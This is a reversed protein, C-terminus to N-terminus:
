HKGFPSAHGGPKAGGPKAGGSGSPAATAPASVSVPAAENKQNTQYKQYMVYGAGGILAMLILVFIPGFPSPRTSSNNYKERKGSRGSGSRSASPSVYTPQEVGPGPKFAPLPNGALDYRVEEQGPLAGSGPTFGGGTAPRPPPQSAGPPAPRPGPVPRAGPATPRPVGPAPPRSAGSVRSGPAPKKPTGPPEADPPAPAAMPNWNRPIPNGNIDLLPEESGAESSEPASNAFEPSDPAPM